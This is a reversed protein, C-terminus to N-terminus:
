DTILAKIIFYGVVGIVILIALTFKWPTTPKSAKIESTSLSQNNKEISLEIAGEKSFKLRSQYLINFQTDSQLRSEFQERATNPLKDNLYDDIYQNDKYSTDM